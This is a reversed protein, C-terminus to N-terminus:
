SGLFERKLSQYDVKGSSLRPLGPVIVISIKSPHLSSSSQITRRVDREDVGVSVVLVREDVGLVAHEGGLESLPRELSDLSVRKGSVKIDRNARGTIFLFGDEDLYGVDGTKLVGSFEDPLGLDRASSAYGLCVNPGSYVVEGSEETNSNREISLSGGPIPIGVSGLKSTAFDPPVYSIRPTAETQGYMTFYLFGFTEAFELFRNTKEPELRGGAQTMCKMQEFVGTPMGSRLIMEYQFPVGSFDTAKHQLFDAWFDTTLTSHESLVLPIRYGMAVHLLSLGYTYHLPLSAIFVRGESIKLYQGIALASAMINNYSVRVCKPSGTSGSTPMLAALERNIDTTSVDPNVFLSVNNNLSTRAWSYFSDQTDIVASSVNFVKALSLLTEIPTEHDVVLVPTNSRLAAIYTLAFVLRDKAALLLVGTPLSESISDAFNYTQDFSLSAGSAPHILFTDSGQRIVGEFPEELFKSTM